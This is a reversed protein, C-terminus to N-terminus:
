PKQLQLSRGSQPATSSARDTGFKNQGPYEDYTEIPYSGSVRDGAVGVYSPVYRIRQTTWTAVGTSIYTFKVWVMKLGTSDLVLPYTAPLPDPLPLINPTWIAGDQSINVTSFTAPDAVFFTLEVSSTATSLDGQNILFDDAAFLADACLMLCLYGLVMRWRNFFDKGKVRDM